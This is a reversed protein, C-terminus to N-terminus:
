NIVTAKSRHNKTEFRTSKILIIQFFVGVIFLILSILNFRNTKEIEPTNGKLFEFIMVCFYTKTINGYYKYKSLITNGWFYFLLISFLVKIGIITM